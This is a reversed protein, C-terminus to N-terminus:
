RNFHGSEVARINNVVVIEIQALTSIDPGSVSGSVNEYKDVGIRDRFMGDNFFNDGPYLLSLSEDVDIFTTNVIM